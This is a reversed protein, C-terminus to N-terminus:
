GLDSPGSPSNRSFANQFISYQDPLQSLEAFIRRLSSRLVTDPLSQLQDFDIGTVDLLESELAPEDTM